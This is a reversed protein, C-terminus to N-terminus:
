VSSEQATDPRQASKTVSPKNASELQINEDRVSEM